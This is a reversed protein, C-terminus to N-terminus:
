LSRMLFADKRRANPRAMNSGANACAGGAARLISLSNIWRCNPLWNVSTGSNWGCKAIEVAIAYLVYGNRRAALIRHDILRLVVVRHDIRIVIKKPIAIGLQRGREALRDSAARNPTSIMSPASLPPQCDAVGFALYTITFKGYLVSETLFIRVRLLFTSADVHFFGAFHPFSPRTRRRCSIGSRAWPRLYATAESEAM